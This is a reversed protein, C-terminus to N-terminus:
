KSVGFLVPQFAMMVLVAYLQWDMVTIGKTALIIGTACSFVPTIWNM